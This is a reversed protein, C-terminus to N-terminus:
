DEAGSGREAALADLSPISVARGSFLALGDKELRTMIRSVTEHRTGIMSALDRRSVPLHVSGSGDGHSVGHHNVLDVLLQCLRGRNSLTAQQMLMEQALEVDASARALIAFSLAPSQALVTALASREIRCVRAPGVAEASTKHEGGSLFSRYGLTDGPYALKLLVSYGASDLRRIAITGAAVCYVGSNGDGQRFVAQGASYDRQTRARALTAELGADLRQWPSHAHAACAKCGECAATSNRAWGRTAM